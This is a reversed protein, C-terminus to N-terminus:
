ASVITATTATLIGLQPISDIPLAYNAASGNIKTNAVDLIGTVNLLRSELQSVRIILAEEQDAWGQALEKFYGNVAEEVYPKM